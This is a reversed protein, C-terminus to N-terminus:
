NSQTESLVSNAEELKMSNIGGWFVATGEKQLAIRLLFLGYRKDNM